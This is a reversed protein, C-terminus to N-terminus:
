LTPAKVEVITVEITSGTPATYSVTEGVKHGLVAEGLPSQPSFVELDISADAAIMERSGIMFTDTDDPDDDYYITVTSGPTAEDPGGPAVGVQANELMATLVRIRAEQHGQEERAAHYGANESLDGEERATAIKAAVARRGEGKLYALEETLRDYADQTLWTTSATM